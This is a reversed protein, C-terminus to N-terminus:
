RVEIFAEPDRPPREEPPAAAHGVAVAGMPQWEQPLELVERVVDPCFMTSSIWASGLGEMALGVLLNQVGAGMAVLFMSREADARRADPYPHAGDAVLCPVVLYPANRLVDGRRLRKTISEETFGDGRLDATWADRMEDLLRKKTAASEVLVFRWPTTHHPAPATIAASVARRVAAPDVPADTFERITRRAPVVDRSGYRFLDEDAPRVLAAAGAGDAETVRHELGRVVAVPIGNSKGKVLEAAAAIEDAVANVTADLVNGHTDSSGRLDDLADIGAAGIAVDTQGSRWPRGFTDTILVAIRVGFREQLAARLRRASADPDEPLLLVYGPEVNSADVGAAAAVLGSRMQVIRTAGKRAVVRVTEADIATERDMRHVRGEAKSVIKSTVALIDGDRPEVAAAVIEALDDGPRIEPLGTVGHVHLDRTM